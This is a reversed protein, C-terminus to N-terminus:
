YPVSAGPRFFRRSAAPPPLKEFHYADLDAFFGPSGPAHTSIELDHIRANWYHRVDRQTPGSM